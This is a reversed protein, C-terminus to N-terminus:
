DSIKLHKAFKLLFNDLEKSANNDGTARKLTESLSAMTQHIFKKMDDTLMEKTWLDIKLASKENDDWLALFFSNAKILGKKNDSTSWTIEEPVNYKDLSINLTITSKKNM